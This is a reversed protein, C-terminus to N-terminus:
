SEHQTGLVTVVTIGHYLPAGLKPTDSGHSGHSGHSGSSRCAENLLEMM